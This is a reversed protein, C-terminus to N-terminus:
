PKEGPDASRAMKLAQTTIYYKTIMDPVEWEPMDGKELYGLFNRTVQGFHAEHGLRYKDPIVVNWTKEDVKKISLGPYDTAFDQEVTKKLLKEFTTADGQKMSVFVQPIYNQEMGQKIMLDANSGRMISFHTDGAGDVARYRWEVSIHIYKGKLRYDMAGNCYVKLTDNKVYKELYGPYEKLGTVAEFEDPAIATTWHRASLMDVDKKYDLAVGPFAEWQALDVLHTTVDVIGEGQQEVDFAWAPRVLPIGSVYKFFHHVSEKTIAPEDETGDILEGFLGAKESLKKQLITTIEFRETMIDYLLVGEKAALAFSEEMEPFKEPTIVMPKDALVNLGNEVSHYIYDTKIKNNGALVVVNGKKEELMKEFYDPGLYIHEDWHTPDDTRTNYADIRNLYDQVEPGKPAYVYVNSDVSPYMVKQVLSAHFHGPNLTILTVPKGNQNKMTSHCSMILSLSMIVPIIRSRNMKTLNNPTPKFSSLM